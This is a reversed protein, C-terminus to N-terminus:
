RDAHRDESNPRPTRSRSRQRARAIKLAARLAAERRYLEDLEARIAEADLSEILDIPDLTPTHTAM